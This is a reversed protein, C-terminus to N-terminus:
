PQDLEIERRERAHTRAGVRERFVPAPEVDHDRVCAHHRRRELPGDVAELELEPGIMETMEHQDVADRREDGFSPADHDDRGRPMAHRLEAELIRVEKLRFVVRPHGVRARFRGVNEEGDLKVAAV